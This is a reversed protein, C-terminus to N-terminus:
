CMLVLKTNNLIHEGWRLRAWDVAKTGLEGVEAMVDSKELLCTLCTEHGEMASIHLATCGANDRADAAGASALLIKLAAAHGGKAAAHLPLCGGNNERTCVDKGFKLLVKVCATHGRRAALHLATNGTQPDEAELNAGAAILAEVCGQLLSPNPHRPTLLRTPHPSTISSSVCSVKHGNEAAVHLASKTHKEVAVETVNRPCECNM